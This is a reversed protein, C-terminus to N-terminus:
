HHGIISTHRLDTECAQVAKEVQWHGAQLHRSINSSKLVSTLSGATLPCPSATFSCVQWPNISSQGNEFIFQLKKSLSFVLSIPVENILIPWQIRPVLLHLLFWIKQSGTFHSTDITNIGDLLKKQSEAISKGDFISGDIM